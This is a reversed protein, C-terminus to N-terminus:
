PAYLSRRGSFNSPSLKICLAMVIPCWQPLYYSFIHSTLNQLVFTIILQLYFYNLTQKEYHLLKGTDSLLNFLCLLKRSSQLINM